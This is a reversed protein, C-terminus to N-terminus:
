RKRRAVPKKSKAKARPRKKSATGTSKAKARLGTSGFTWWGAGENDAGKPSTVVNAFPSNRIPVTNLVFRQQIDGVPVVFRFTEIGNQEQVEVNWYQSLTDTMRYGHVLPPTLRMMALNAGGEQVFGNKLIFRIEDANNNIPVLTWRSEPATPTVPMFAVLYPDVLYVCLIRYTPEVFLRLNGSPFGRDKFYAATVLMPTSLNGKMVPKKKKM